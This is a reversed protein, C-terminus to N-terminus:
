TPRTPANATANPTPDATADTGTANASVVPDAPEVPDLASDPEAPGDVRAGERPADPERSAEGPASAELAGLAGLAPRLDPETGPARPVVPESLSAAGPARLPLPERAPKTGAASARVRSARGPPTVKPDPVDSCFGMTASGVEGASVTETGSETPVTSLEVGAVLWTAPREAGKAEAAASGGTILAAGATAADPRTLPRPAPNNAQNPAPSLPSEGAAAGSTHAAAAAARRSIPPPESLATGAAATTDEPSGTAAAADNNPDAALTADGDAAAIPAHCGPLMRRSKTPLPVASLGFAPMRSPL